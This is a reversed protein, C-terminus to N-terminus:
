ARAPFAFANRSPTFANTATTLIPAQAATKPLDGFFRIEAEENNEAEVVSAEHWGAREFNLIRLSAGELAVYISVPVDAALGILPQNLQWAALAGLVMVSIVAFAALWQRHYLLWFQPVILAPVSFGDKIFVAREVDAGNQMVVFRAM